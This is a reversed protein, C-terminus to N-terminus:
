TTFFISAGIITLMTALLYISFWMTTKLTNEEKYLFHRLLLLFSCLVVFMTIFTLFKFEFRESGQATNVGQFLLAIIASFIGLLEINKIKGNELEKEQITLKGDLKEFLSAFSMLSKIENKDNELKNQLREIEKELNQYDLPLSFTSPSFVKLELGCTELKYTTLCEEFPLQFAYFFHDKCWHLTTKYKIVVEELHLNAQELKNIISKELKENKELEIKLFEIYVIIFQSLKKYPFFNKIFSKSELQNIKKKEKELFEKFNFELSIKEKEAEVSCSLICNNIYNESIKKSFVNFINNDAVVDDLSIAKLNSLNKDFDKAKKLQRHKNWYTNETSEFSKLIRRYIENFDSLYHNKSYDCWPLYNNYIYPHSDTSFSQEIGSAVYYEKESDQQQNKRIILKRILHTTKDMLIHAIFKIQENPIPLKELCEKFTINLNLLTELNEENNRLTFEKRSLALNKLFLKSLILEFDKKEFKLDEIIETSKDSLNFVLIKDLKSIIDNIFKQNKKYEELCQKFSYLFKIESLKATYKVEEETALFSFDPYHFFTDILNILSNIKALFADNLYEGELVSYNLSIFLELLFAEEKSKLELFFAKFKDESQLVQTYTDIVLVNKSDEIKSFIDDIWRM